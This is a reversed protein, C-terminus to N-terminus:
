FCALQREAVLDDNWEATEERTTTWSTDDERQADAADRAEIEALALQARAVVATTEDVTPIRAPNDARETPDVVSRDRLDPMATEPGDIHRAHDQDQALDDETIERHADDARQADLHVALWDEATVRAGPHTLDVGRAGLEVRAREAKDRTQATHANWTARAEDAAELQEARDALSDSERRAREAAEALQAREPEATARASWVDADAAAKSAEQHTRDLEDGVWRPAWATEREYARVRM